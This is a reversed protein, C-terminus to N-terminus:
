WYIVHSRVATGSDDHADRRAILYKKKETPGLM